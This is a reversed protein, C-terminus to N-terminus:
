SSISFHVPIIGPLCFILSSSPHERSVGSVGLGRCDLLAVALLSTM